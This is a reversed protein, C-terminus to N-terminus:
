AAMRYRGRVVDWRYHTWSLRGDAIFDKHYFNWLSSNNTLQTNGGKHISRMLLGARDYELVCSVIRRENAQQGMWWRMWREGIHHYPKGHYKFQYQNGKNDVAIGHIAVRTPSKGPFPKPALKDVVFPVEALKQPNFRRMLSRAGKGHGKQFGM